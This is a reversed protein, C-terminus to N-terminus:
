ANKKQKYSAYEQELAEVVNANYDAWVEDSNLIFHTAQALDDDLAVNLAWEMAEKNGVNNMLCTEAEERLAQPSYAICNWWELDGSRQQREDFMQCYKEVVKAYADVAKQLDKVHVLLEDRSMDNINM